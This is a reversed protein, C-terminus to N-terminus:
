FEILITRSDIVRGYVLRKSSLNMVRVVDGRGGKDKVQGITTIRLLGKEAVLRVIGRPKVLIPSQLLSTTLPEGLAIARKTVKGVAQDLGTLFTKTSRQFPEMQIRCDEPGILVNKDLPRAAVVIPRYLVLKVTTWLSDKIKGNVRFIIRVSGGRQGLGKQPLLIERSIEGKPLVVDRIGKIDRVKVLDKPWRIRSLLEETVWRNIEEKGFVVSATKISVRKPVKLRLLDDRDTAQRIKSLIYARSLNRVRGPKPARAIEIERLRRILGKDKGEIRAIQGLTVKEGMVTAEKRLYVDIGGSYVPAVLFIVPTIAFFLCFILTKKM